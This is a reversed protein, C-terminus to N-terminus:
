VQYTMGACTYGGGVTTFGLLDGKQFQMNPIQGKFAWDMGIGLAAGSVNGTKVVSLLTKDYSIKTKDALRQLIRLNAQHPLLYDLDEVQKNAKELSKQLSNYMSNVANRQVLPGGKMLIPEGYNMSLMENNYSTTSYFSLIGENEIDSEELIVASAGDGFLIATTIDNFDMHKSMLDAGIVLIRKYEKSKIMMYAIGIGDLFSSCATNMHFASIDKAGIYHAVMCAPNPMLQEPTYSCFIIHDIDTASVNAQKMADLAAMYGMYETLQSPGAPDVIQESDFFVRQEVGSVQKVWLDFLEDDKIGEVNNGKKRVTEKARASDFNKIRAFLDKNNVVNTGLFSGTSIIKVAM